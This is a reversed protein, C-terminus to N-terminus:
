SYVPTFRLNGDDYISIAYSNIYNTVILLQFTNIQLLYLHDISFICKSILKGGASRHKPLTINVCTYTKVRFNPPESSLLCWVHGPGRWCGRSASGWRSALYGGWPHLSGPHLTWTWLKREALPCHCMRSSHMEDRTNCDNPSLVTELSYLYHMPFVNAQKNIDISM